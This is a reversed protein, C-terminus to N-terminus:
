FHSQASDKDVPQNFVITINPNTIDIGTSSSIPHSSEVAVKGITTFTLTIDEDTIGGSLSEFGSKFVINYTTEKQLPESFIYRLNKDDDWEISGPVNPEISFSTEVSARNMEQDFAVHVSADAKVSDGKPEYTDILPTTVTTFQFTKLLKTEGRELDDNTLVNYSRETQYVKVTYKQDQRLNKEFYVIQKNEVQDIKAIKAEPTIELKTDVFTGIPSDYEITLPENVPVDVANKQPSTDIIKPVRPASYELALEHSKESYWPPKLGVLYVVIQSNPLFSEKPYFTVRDYLPLGFIKGEWEWTGDIEPSLHFQINDRDVPLTFDITIKPAATVFRSNEPPYSQVVYPRQHLTSRLTILVYIILLIKLIFAIDHLANKISVHGHFIDSAEPHRTLHKFIQKWYRGTILFLIFIVVVTLILAAIREEFSLHQLVLSDYIVQLDLSNM